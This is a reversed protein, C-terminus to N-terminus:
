LRSAYLMAYRDRAGVISMFRLTRENELMAFAYTRYNTFDM